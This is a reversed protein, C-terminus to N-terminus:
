LRGLCLMFFNQLSGVVSFILVVVSESSLVLVSGWLLESVLGLFVFIVVSESSLLVESGLSLVNVSLFSFLKFIIGVSFGGVSTSFGILLFVFWFGFNLGVLLLFIVSINLFIIGFFITGVLGEQLYPLAGLVM